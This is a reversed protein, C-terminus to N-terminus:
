LLFSSSPYQLQWVTYLSCLSCVSQLQCSMVVVALQIDLTHCHFLRGYSLHLLQRPFFSLCLLKIWTLPQKGKTLCNELLFFSFSFFNDEVRVCLTLRRQRKVKRMLQDVGLERALKTYTSDMPESYLFFSLLLFLTLFFAPSSVRERERRRERKRWRM